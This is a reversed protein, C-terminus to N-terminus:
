YLFKVKKDYLKEIEEIELIKIKKKLEEYDVQLNIDSQKLSLAELIVETANYYL